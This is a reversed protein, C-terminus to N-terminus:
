RRRGSYLRRRTFLSCPTPTRSSSFSPAGPERRRPQGDDSGRTHRDKLAKVAATVSRTGGTPRSTTSRPPPTRRGGGADLGRGGMLQAKDLNLTRAWNAHVARRAGRRSGSAHSGGGDGEPRVGVTQARVAGGQVEMRRRVRDPRAPLRAGARAPYLVKLYSVVRGTVLVATGAQMGAHARAVRTSERTAQRVLTQEVTLVGAKKAQEIQSRRSGEVYGGPDGGM